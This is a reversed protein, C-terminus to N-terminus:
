LNFLRKQRPSAHDVFEQYYGKGDLMLQLDDIFDLIYSDHSSRLIVDPGEGIFEYRVNYYQELFSMMHLSLDQTEPHLTILRSILPHYPQQHSRFKYLRRKLNKDKICLQYMYQNSRCMADLDRDNLQNLILNNIDDM